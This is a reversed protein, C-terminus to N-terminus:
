LRCLYLPVLACPGGGGGVGGSSCSEVLVFWGRRCLGPMLVARPPFGLARRVRAREQAERQALSTQVTVQFNDGPLTVFGSGQVGLGSLGHGRACEVLTCTSFGWVRVPEKLEDSSEWLVGLFSWVRLLLAAIRDPEHSTANGCRRSLFRLKATFIKHTQHETWLCFCRMWRFMRGIGICFASPKPSPPPELIALPESLSLRQAPAELFLPEDRSSSSRLDLFSRAQAALM